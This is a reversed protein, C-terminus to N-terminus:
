MEEKRQQGWYSMLQDDFAKKRSRSVTLKIGGSMVVLSKERTIIHRINIIYSVKAYLFGYDKLENYYEEMGVRSKISLEKEECNGADRLLGVKEAGERTLYIRRGTRERMIFIIDSLQIAHTVGDHSVPIVVARDKEKKRAEELTMRLDAMFDASVSDKVLYAFPKARVIRSVPYQHATYFAILADSDRKRIQEVLEVGEMEGEMYIDLFFVSFKRFGDMLDKGSHFEFFRVHDSNKTCKRILKKLEQIDSLCDDCIAIEMQEDRWCGNRMQIDSGRAVGGAQGFFRGILEATRHMLLKIIIVYLHM